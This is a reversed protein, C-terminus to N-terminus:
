FSGVTLDLSMSTLLDNLAKAYTRTCIKKSLVITCNVSLLQADDDVTTTANLADAKLTDVDRTLRKSSNSTSVIADHIEVQSSAIADDASQRLHNQIKFFCIQNEGADREFQLRSVATKM